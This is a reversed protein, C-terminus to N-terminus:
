WPIRRADRYFRGTALESATAAWVIGRAGEAVSRSAGAGGMDTRVWGPCVAAVRVGRPELERAYLRTLANLAIKSVRYASSPWGSAAHRREAVERVFGDVLAVLRAEDLDADLFRERLQPALGELEGLGSSVMVIRGGDAIRDVLARTLRRVGHFNTALTRYAVVEDFGELAIGANNVLVDLGISSRELERALADISPPANVDLQRHEVRLGRAALAEAQARGSEARSTLWVEFGLEALESATELGLGRSAGTVLARKAAAGM